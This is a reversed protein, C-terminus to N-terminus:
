FKHDKWTLKAFTPTPPNAQTINPRFGFDDLITGDSCMLVWSRTGGRYLVEFVKFWEGFIMSHYYGCEKASIVPNEAVSDPEMAKKKPQPNWSLIAVSFLILGVVLAGFIQLELM